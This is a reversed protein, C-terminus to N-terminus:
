IMGAVLQAIQAVCFKSTYLANLKDVRYLKLVKLSSTQSCNLFIFVDLFCFSVDFLINVGVHILLNEHFNDQAM